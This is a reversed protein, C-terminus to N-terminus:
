FVFDKDIIFKCVFDNMESETMEKYKKNNLKVLKPIFDKDTDFKNKIQEKIRDSLNMNYLSSFRMARLLSLDKMFHSDIVFDITNSEVAQKYFEDYYKNESFDYVIGEINLTVAKALNPKNIELDTDKFVTHVELEWIDVIIDNITVKYGGFDNKSYWCGSERLAFIMRNEGSRYACVIDIDRPFKDFKYNNRVYDRVIGGIFLLDNSVELYSIFKHLDPYPEILSYFDEKFNAM